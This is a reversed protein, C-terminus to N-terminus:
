DVESERILSYNYQYGFPRIRSDIGGKAAKQPVQGLETSDKESPHLLSDRSDKEIKEGADMHDKESLMYRYISYLAAQINDVGPIKSERISYEISGFLNGGKITAPDVIGSKVLFKGLRDQAGYVDEHIVEKPFTLLKNSEPILVLDISRHDFIMLAGDLTRRGQLEIQIPPTRDIGITVDTPKEIEVGVGPGFNVKVGVNAEVLDVTQKNINIKM